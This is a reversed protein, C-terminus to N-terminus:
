PPRGARLPLLARPRGGPDAAAWRRPRGLDRDPLPARRRPRDPRGRLLVRGRRREGTRWQLVGDYPVFTVPRCIRDRVADAYTYSVDPVVVGDDYRVGPIPTQDSRFPTGSLLLRRGADRFALHFGLGWALDEGLHHAEDAIVLTPAGCQRSWREAVMAVRAYTVAVGDFDRPPRLEPADPVLHVGLRGAADAWQRTLPATPAVVVVRRVAGARLLERAFVLAPRTKGAGPAAAVLLAGSRWARMTM